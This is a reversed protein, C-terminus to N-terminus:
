EIIGLQVIFIDLMNLRSDEACFFGCCGDAALRMFLELTFLGSFFYRTVEPLQSWFFPLLTLEVLM